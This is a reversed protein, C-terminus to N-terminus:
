VTSFRLAIRVAVIQEIIWALTVVSDLVPFHTLLEKHVCKWVSPSCTLNSNVFLEVEKM